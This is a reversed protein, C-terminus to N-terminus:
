LREFVKQLCFSWTATISLGFFMGLSGGVSGILDPTSIVEIEERVQKMMSYMGMFFDIRKHRETQNYITSDTRGIQYSIFKRVMFCDAAETEPMENLMCRLDSSSNCLPLDYSSLIHCKTPCDVKKALNSVCEIIDDNGDKFHHEVSNIIFESYDNGFRLYINSTLIQPWTQDALNVWTKNSTLFLQIGEPFDMSELTPNMQFTFDIGFSGHVEFQPILAYCKGLSLTRVELVKFSGNPMEAYSIDGEFHVEGLRIQNDPNSNLFITFDKGLEYSSENYRETLTSNTFDHKYIDDYYKLGYKLGVSRKQGPSICITTTPFELAKAKVFGNTVTYRAKIYADIQDKFFFTVFFVTCIVYITIECIIQIVVKKQLMNELVPWCEIVFFLGKEIQKHHKSLTM